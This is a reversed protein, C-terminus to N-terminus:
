RWRGSVHPSVPAAFWREFVASALELLSARVALVLKAPDGAEAIRASEAADIVAVGDIWGLGVVHERLRDLQFSLGRPNADDDLLLALVADREVDSRHHRRYAVLSENAALLMELAPPSAAAGAFSVIAEVSGVVALARELRRGLDGFRWAPGRVTSESWLGSLAALDALVADLADATPVDHLRDFREPLRGLIRGTTASLYGRVTLAEAIAVGLRVVVAGSAQAVAAGLEDAASLRRPETASAGVRSAALLDVAAGVWPDVLALGPDEDLQTVITRAARAAVEARELARGLGYMADAARTPISSGLDVQPLMRGPPPVVLQRSVWVDKALAATPLSPDDNPRLVRGTGGPLVTVGDPGVIAHLRIVVRVDDLGDSGLASTRAATHVTADFVPLSPREVDFLAAAAALHPWLAREEALGAGLANAVAVGAGRAAAGLGPVGTAGHDDVHLPDAADDELRRYLVDVPELGGVTRLWVRGDRVVLDGGEVLNFGLQMALYSHEVYSPHEIGGSFLVLRPSPASSTAALGRRLAALFGGLPAVGADRVASPASRAIASRNLLAYGLGSPADTLDGVVAWRGEALPMVDLAYSTLWRAPPQAGVQTLRYRPSSHAVAAPVIGDAILRREGYLDALVREWLTVRVRVEAALRDFAADGLTFPIPDLRWPRSTLALTPEARGVTLDHVVHGAGEALLLRDCAQQLARLDDLSGLDVNPIM